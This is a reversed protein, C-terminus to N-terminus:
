IPFPIHINKIYSNLENEFEKHFEETHSTKIKDKIKKSLNNDIYKFDCNIEKYNNINEVTLNINQTFLDYATKYNYNTRGISDLIENITYDKTFLEHIYSLKINFLPSSYDSGSLISLYTLQQKNIKLLSCIKDLKVFEVKHTIINFDRLIIPCQFGIMDYDNSLCADAIKNKVLYSCILDAEHNIDIYSIKLINFLNKVEEIHNKTIKLTRREFKKINNEIVIKEKKIEALKTEDDTTTEKIKIEELDKEFKRKITENKKRDNKRKNITTKIKIDPPKGDFVFIPKINNNDYYKIFNILAVLYNPKNMLGYFMNSFDIAVHKINYKKYINIINMKVIYDNENLKNKYIFNKIFKIIGNSKM